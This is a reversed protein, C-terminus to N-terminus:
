VATLLEIKRTDVAPIALPLSLNRAYEKPTGKSEKRIGQTNRQIGQTNRAYKKRQTGPQGIFARL